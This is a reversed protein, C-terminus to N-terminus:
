FWRGAPWNQSFPLRWHRIWPLPWPPGPFGGGGGGEAIKRFYRIKKPDGSNDECFEVNMTLGEFAGGGGGGGGGGGWLQLDLDAM